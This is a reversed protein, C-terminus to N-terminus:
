DCDLVCAHHMARVRTNSDKIDVQFSALHWQQGRDGKARFYPTFDEDDEGQRTYVRLWGINKGSMHYFFQVNACSLTPPVGPQRGLSPSTFRSLCTLWM